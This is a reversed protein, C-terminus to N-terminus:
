QRLKKGKHSTGIKTVATPKDPVENRFGCSNADHEQGSAHAALAL